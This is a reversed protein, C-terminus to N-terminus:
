EGDDPAQVVFEAQAQMWVSELADVDFWSMFLYLKLEGASGTTFSCLHAEPGAVRAADLWYDYVLSTLLNGEGDWDQAWDEDAPVEEFGFNVPPSWDGSSPPAAATLGEDTLAAVAALLYDNIEDYGAEYHLEYTTNPALVTLATGGGVARVEFALSTQEETWPDQDQAPEELEAAASEMQWGGEGGMMMEMEAVLCEDDQAAYWCPVHAGAGIEHGEVFAVFDALDV